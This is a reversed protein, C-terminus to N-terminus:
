SHIYRSTLPYIANGVDLEVDCAHSRLGSGQLVLLLKGHVPCMNTSGITAKVKLRPSTTRARSRDHVAGLQLLRVGRFSHVCCYGPGCWLRTERPQNEEHSECIGLVTIPRASEAPGLERLDGLGPIPHVNDVEGAVAFYVSRPIGLNSISLPDANSHVLLRRVPLQSELPYITDNLFPM